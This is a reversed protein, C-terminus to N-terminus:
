QISTNVPVFGYLTVGGWGQDHRFVVTGPLTILDIIESISLYEEPDDKSPIRLEGDNSDPLGLHQNFLKSRYQFGSYASIDLALFLLHECSSDEDWTWEGAYANVSGPYHIKGCFPCDIRDEDSTDSSEESVEGIFPKAEEPGFADADKEDIRVLGGPTAATYTGGQIQTIFIDAGAPIEVLRNDPISLGEM